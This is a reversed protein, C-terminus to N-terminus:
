EAFPKSLSEAFNCFEAHAPDHDQDKKFKAKYDLRLKAVTPGSNTNKKWKVEFLEVGAKMQLAEESAPIPSNTYFEGSGTLPKDDEVKLQYAAAAQGKIDAEKELAPDDNISVGQMQLTTKVRGERQQVVHALEHGLLEQGARSGPEYKGPAFYINNGQTYALAGLDTAKPSNPHIKVDSFGANFASEMKAQVEEPMGTNNTNKQFLSNETKPTKNLLDSKLQIDEEDGTKMQIPNSQIGRTAAMLLGAVAQNGISRQLQLVDHPSLSGPDSMARQIIVATHTQQFSNSSNDFGSVPLRHETTTKDNNHLQEKQSM